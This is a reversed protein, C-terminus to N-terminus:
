EPRVTWETETGGFGCQYLTLRPVAQPDRSGKAPRALNGTFIRDSGATDLKDHQGV